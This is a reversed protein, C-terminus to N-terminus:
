GGAGGGSGGDDSDLGGREVDTDVESLVEVRIEIGAPAPDSVLAERRQRAAAKRCLCALGRYMGGCYRCERMM